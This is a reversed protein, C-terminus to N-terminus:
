KRRGSALWFIVGGGLVIWPLNKMSFMGSEKLDPPSKGSALAKFVSGIYDLIDGGGGEAGGKGFIAGPLESAGSAAYAAGARTAADVVQEDTALRVVQGGTRGVLGAADSVKRGVLDATDSVASGVCDWFGKCPGGMSGMAVPRPAFGLLQRMTIGPFQQAALALFVFGAEADSIEGLNLNFDSGAMTILTPNM